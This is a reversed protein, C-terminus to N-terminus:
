PQDSWVLEIEVAPAAPALGEGPGPRGGGEPGGGGLAPALAQPTTAGAPADFRPFALLTWRVPAGGPGAERGEVVRLVPLFYDGPALAERRIEGDDSLERLEWADPVVSKGLLRVRGDQRVLTAPSSGKGSAIPLEIWEGAAPEFRALRLRYDEGDYRSWAILAGGSVAILQPAIDPVANDEGVRQAESWGAEAAEGGVSWYIEDDEGDHGVWAILWAGAALVTSRLAVRGGPGAGAVVEPDSWSGAEGNAPERWRSLRVVADSQSEGELWAIAALGGDAVVPVASSRHRAIQGSPPDVESLVGGSERLVLLESGEADFVNGTVVWGDSLEAIAQLSAGPPLDLDVVTGDAGEIRHGVLALGREGEPAQVVRPRLTQAEAAGLPLLVLAALVATPTWSHLPTRFRM